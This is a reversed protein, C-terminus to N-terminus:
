GRKFTVWCPYLGACGILLLLAIAVAGYRGVEGRQVVADENATDFLALRDAAADDNGVAGLLLRLFAFDDRDAFALRVIFALDEREVDLSAVADEEALVGAGLDLDVAFFEEDHTLFFDEADELLLDASSTHMEAAAFRM